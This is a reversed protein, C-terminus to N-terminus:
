AVRAKQNIRRELEKVVVNVDEVTDIRITDLGHAKPSDTGVGVGVVSYGRTKCTRIERQLVDLEENYNENPMAGDTYYLVVKDTARSKDCLKRYFELAHGDLNCLGPGVARLRERTAESWREGPEKVVVIDLDLVSRYSYDDKNHLSGNHAYVAFEIGLKALMEAKHMAAKKIIGLAGSATSGSNDMAIVVFYDKAGPERKKAFLRDDQVPVRRLARTNIRGAKLNREKRAKRNDSFVVRLRSLSGSIIAPDVEAKYGLKDDEHYWQARCSSSADSMDKHCYPCVNKTRSWALRASINTGKSNYVPQGWRHINVGFIGKSPEDFHEGQQVAREIEEADAMEEVSPTRGDDEHGGFVALARECEEPSGDDDDEPVSHGGSDGSGSGGSQSEGSEDGDDDSYTSDECDGCLPGGAEHNYTQGEQHPDFNAGCSVCEKDDVGAEGGGANGTPTDGSAPDDGDTDGADSDEDGDTGAGDTDSDSDGAGTDGDEADGDAGDGDSGDESGGGAGGDGDSGDESGDGAGGDGESGDEADDGDGDAGSGDEADDGDDAAEDGDGADDSDGPEDDSDADDGSDSDSDDDTDSESGDDCPEGQDGAEDDSDDDSDDDDSDDDDPQEVQESEASDEEPVNPGQESEGQEDKRDNEASEENVNEDEDEPDEKRKCFGLERMRELVPFGMRYIARTSRATNVKALEMSLLPDDLAASVEDSFWGRYDFGAAKAYLGCILQINRPADSWFSITGDSREIGDEFVSIVQARFMKYTGPRASYMRTNVRADELANLIAPMFPSVVQAAGMYSTPNAVEIAKAIKGARTDADRGMEALKRVIIEQKDADSLAEFTDFVQHAIEHYLTTEVGELVRHLPCLHSGTVEDRKGCLHKQHSMKDGLEIPIRLWTRQGDTRPTGDGTLILEAKPNRTIARLFNQLGGHMQRGRRAAEQARQIRYETPDITKTYDGGGLLISPDTSTTM